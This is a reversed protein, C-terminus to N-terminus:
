QWKAAQQHLKYFHTKLIKEIDLTEFTEQVLVGKRNEADIRIDMRYSRAERPVWVFTPKEKRSLSKEFVKGNPEPEGNIDLKLVQIHYQPEILNFSNLTVKISKGKPWIFKPDAKVEVGYNNGIKSLWQNPILGLNEDEEKIKERGVFYIYEGFRVPNSHVAVWEHLPFSVVRKKRYDFFKINNDWLFAVANEQMAVPSMLKTSNLKEWWYLTGNGNFFYINNDRPIVAVYPGVKVPMSTLLDGMQYRWDVRNNLSVKVLERKETGYYIWKGDMLFGSAAFHKLKNGNLSNQAKNYVFLRSTTLFYIQGGKVAANYVTDNAAEQIKIKKKDSYRYFVVRNGSTRYVLLDHDLALIKQADIGSLQAVEKMQEVHFLVYKSTTQPSKIKLILLEKNNYFTAEPEISQNLNYLYNIIRGEPNWRFIQGDVTIFLIENGHKIIRGALDKGKLDLVSEDYLSGTVEPVVRVRCGSALVVLSFIVAFILFHKRNQERNM